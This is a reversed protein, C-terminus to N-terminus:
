WHLPDGNPIRNGVSSCNWCLHVATKRGSNRFFLFISCKRLKSFFPFARAGNMGPALGLKM